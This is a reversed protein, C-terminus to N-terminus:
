VATVSAPEVTFGGCCRLIVSPQTAQDVAVVGTQVQPQRGILPGRQVPVDAITVSALTSCHGDAVIAHANTSGTAPEVAIGLTFLELRGDANAILAPSDPLDVGPQGVSSM